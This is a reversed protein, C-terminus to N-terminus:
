PSNGKPQRGKDSPKKGVAKAPVSPQRLKAPSQPGEAPASGAPKSRDVFPITAIARAIVILVLTSFAVTFGLSFAFALNSQAACTPDLSSLSTARYLNEVFVSKADYRYVGDVVQDHFLCDVWGTSILYSEVVFSACLLEILNLGSMVFARMASKYGGDDPESRHIVTIYFHNCTVDYIRWAGFMALFTIYGGWIAYNVFMASIVTLVVFLIVLIDTFDPSKSLLFGLPGRTSLLSIGKIAWRALWVALGHVRYIEDSRSITM